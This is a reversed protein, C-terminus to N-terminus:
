LGIVWQVTLIKDDVLGHGGLGDIIQYNFKIASRWTLWYNVGFTKSNLNSTEPSTVPTKVSSTRVVFELNKTFKSDSMTPKYSLQAYYASSENDNFVLTEVDGDEHVNIYTADDVISKNYQAKIDFVGGLPDIKKIYSFDYAFLNAKVDEFDSHEDGVVSNMFSFGLELSSDSFPLYGLRGGIAKNKNNDDTSGFTLMGAGHADTRLIPGNTAYLSYNFKSSKFDLAGRLEVGVGSSPSIAGHGFGLPMTAMKNIWSPHFRESFTGFPLLFKGARVTIYDNLIYNIDAYELMIEFQGHEYEFELEAEFMLRDSYKFLFIPAFSGMEFTSGSDHEDASNVNIYSASGYGGLVFRRQNTNEKEQSFTNGITICVTLLLLLKKM